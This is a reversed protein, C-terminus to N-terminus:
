KDIQIGTDRLNRITKRSKCEVKIVTKAPPPLKIIITRIGAFLAGCEPKINQPRTIKLVNQVSPSM